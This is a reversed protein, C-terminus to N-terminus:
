RVPIGYRKAKRVVTSHDVGLIKAAERTTGYRALAESLLQRELMERAQDLPIIGRMQIMAHKTPPKQGISIPLHEPMLVEEEATLILREIVNQLERVNGPWHYSELAQIIEPSLRKSQNFKQNYNRLFHWALPFIDERRERLPPIKIPVVYLRYFLDERFKGESVMQPLSRNTAAIIRVNLKTPKGGGVRTVERNEIAKLLKVQCNLPTESVEDLFLVGNDALEFLGPKGGSVAGTFAGKAYGFLESEFLSEPIAGCNVSIFPGKRRPSLRHILRALVEKGTGSEGEFLVISDVQALRAVLTLIERMAKSRAVVEHDTIQSLRAEEPTSLYLATLRYVEEKLLQLETLDRVNVVICDNGFSTQLPTATVYIENGHKLKGMSTVSKHLQQALQVVERLTHLCIHSTGDLDAVRVGRIADEKIGTIRVFSSNVLEVRDDKVVVVGDYFGDIMSKITEDIEAELFARSHFASRDEMLLLIHGSPEGRHFFPSCHLRIEKGMIKRKTHSSATLGRKPFPLKLQSALTRGLLDRGEIGLIEEARPNVFIVTEQSDILIVGLPISELVGHFLDQIPHSM